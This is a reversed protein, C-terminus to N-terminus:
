RISKVMKEFDKEAAEVTSQPGTMKVFVNGESNELIAGRLAYSPMPTSPQGPMGSLFTGSAQVWTIRTSGVQETKEHSQAGEFQGLWRQVNAAVSGGEGAGFYFFTIEANAVGDEGPASLQAKRMPSSPVIWSWDAPREFTYAGVQFQVPDSALLSASGAFLCFIGFPLIRWAARLIPVM